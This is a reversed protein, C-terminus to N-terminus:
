PVLLFLLKNKTYVRFRTNVTVYIFPNTWSSLFAAAWAIDRPPGHIRVSLVIFIPVFSALFCANVLIVILINVKKIRTNTKRIAYGVLVTNSLILTVTPIAVIFILIARDIMKIFFKTSLDFPTQECSSRSPQFKGKNFGMAMGIGIWITPILSFSVALSTIFVMKRKSPVLSRLPFLCRYLKNISLANILFINANLFILRFTASVACLADGFMWVNGGYQIILMPLLVFVCNFIDVFALNKIIWQSMKDLRIANHAITGHLVFINGSLGLLFCIHCWVQQLILVTM